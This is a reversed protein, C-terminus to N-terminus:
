AAEFILDTPSEARHGHVLARVRAWAEAHQEPDGTRRVKRAETRMELYGSGRAHALFEARLRAEIKRVKARNYGMAKATQEQSLQGLFRTRFFSAHEDDLGALFAGILGFIELSEMREESRPTPDPDFTQRQQRVWAELPTSEESHGDRMLAEGVPIQRSRVTVDTIVVNRAITFLYNKYPRIGDYAARARVGFARRFTEQLVDEVDSAQSMGAFHLHRGDSRFAFGRLVFRRLPRRFCRYVLDLACADGDRFRALFDPTSQFPDM